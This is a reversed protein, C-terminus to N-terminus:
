QASCMCKFKNIYFFFDYVYWLFLCLWPCEHVYWSM